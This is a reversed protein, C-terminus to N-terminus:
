KAKDDLKNLLTVIIFHIGLAFSAIFLVWHFWWIGNYLIINAVFGIINMVLCVFLHIYLGVIDRARKKAYKMKDDFDKNEM